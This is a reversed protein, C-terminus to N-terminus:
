TSIPRQQAHHFQLKNYEMDNRQYFQYHVSEDPHASVSM